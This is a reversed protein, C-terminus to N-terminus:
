CGRGRRSDGRPLVTPLENVINRLAQLKTGMVDVIGPLGHGKHYVGAAHQNLENILSSLAIRVENLAGVVETSFAHQQDFYAGLGETLSQVQDSVEALPTNTHPIWDHVRVWEAPGLKAHIRM